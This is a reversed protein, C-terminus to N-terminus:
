KSAILVASPALLTHLGVYATSRRIVRKIGGDAEVTERAYSARRTGPVMVHPRNFSPFAYFHSLDRLGAARAARVVAPRQARGNGRKAFRGYWAPNEFAVYLRGGPRLVRRCETLVVSPTGDPLGHLTVCDFMNAPFPLRVASGRVVTVSALADQAFRRAAFEALLASSEVHTVSRFHRSLAPAMSSLAGGIDLATQQRDFSTLWVWNGCAESAISELAQEARSAVAARELARRWPEGRRMAEIVSNIAPVPLPTATERVRVEADVHGPPGARQAKM